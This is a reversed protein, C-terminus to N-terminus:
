VDEAEDEEELFAELDIELGAVIEGTEVDITLEHSSAGGDDFCQGNLKMEHAVCKEADEETAVVRPYISGDGQDTVYIGFKVKVTKM